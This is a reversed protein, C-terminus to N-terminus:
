DCSLCSRPLSRNPISPLSRAANSDSLRHIVQNSPPPPGILYNPGIEGSNDFPEYYSFDDSLRTRGPIGGFNACADLAYLMLLACAIRFASM